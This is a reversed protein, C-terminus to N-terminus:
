SMCNIPPTIGMWRTIITIPVILVTIPISVRDVHLIGRRRLCCIWRSSMWCYLQDWVKRWPRISKTSDASSEFHHIEIAFRPFQVVPVDSIM